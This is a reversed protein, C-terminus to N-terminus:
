ARNMAKWYPNIPLLVDHGFIMRCREVMVIGSPLVFKGRKVMFLRFPIEFCSIHGRGIVVCMESSPVTVLGVLM